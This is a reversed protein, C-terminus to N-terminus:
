NTGAAAAGGLNRVTPILKRIYRPHLQQRHVRIAPSFKGQYPVALPRVNEILDPPVAALMAPM